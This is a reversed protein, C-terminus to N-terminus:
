KLPKLRPEPSVEQCVERLLNALTDRLENHRITHFGGQRCTLVHDVDFDVGCRCKSPALQLDWSCRLCLGNRFAGKHMAFGLREIPLAALWSSSGKEQALLACKQQHQPMASVITEALKRQEAQRQQQLRRKITRKHVTATAVDGEQKIILKTLPQCVM